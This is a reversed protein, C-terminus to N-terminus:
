PLTTLAPRLSGAALSTATERLRPDAGHVAALTFAALVPFAIIAQGAIMADQTFLLHWAGLPGSRSLLLYLILGVVVTPFSLLGQLTLILARRGRFRNSAVWFGLAVAFPTAILLALPYRNALQRHTARDVLDYADLEHAMMLARGAGQGSSLYGPWPSLGGALAWLQLEKKHTGSDDGRSVFKAGSARIRKLAEPADRLGRVRAPDSAPGAIIFDNWMVDARAKGIGRAVLKEEDARSHTFVLDVDGNEAYKIVQGTGAVLPRVKVGRVATFAGLLKELIGSDELTYTAGLRLDAALRTGALCLFVAAALARGLAAM